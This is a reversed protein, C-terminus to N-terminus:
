PASRVDNETSEDAHVGGPTRGTSGGGAEMRRGPNPSGFSDLYAVIARRLEGRLAADTVGERSPPHLRAASKMGELIGILAVARTTIESPSCEVRSAVLCKGLRIVLEDLREDRQDNCGTASVFRYLASLDPHADAYETVPDLFSDVAESTSLNPWLPASEREMVTLIDRVADRHRRALALILAEREPFFHYMSGTATGSERAVRHMTVGGSGEDAIIRAAADLIACVRRQGREQQPTRPEQVADPGAETATSDGGQEPHSLNSM